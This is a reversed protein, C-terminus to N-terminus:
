GGFAYVADIGYRIKIAGLKAEIASGMVVIYRVQLKLDFGEKSM